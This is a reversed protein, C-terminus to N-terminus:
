TIQGNRPDDALLREHELWDDRIENWLRRIQDDYTTKVAVSAAIGLIVVPAVWGPLPLNRRSRIAIYFMLPIDMATRVTFFRRTQYSESWSGSACMSAIIECNHGILNYRLRPQLKLLFEARAAVKWGDDAAPHHGTFWSQYGHRVVEATGGREFEALTVASIATRAKDWLRVGSGFQIVRDDSIYIGHHFYLWPRQVQLHDGPRFRGTV